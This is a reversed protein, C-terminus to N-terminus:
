RQAGKQAVVLMQGALPRWPLRLYLPTLRSLRAFRSKLSFPMFRAQVDVVTFGRSSVFDSLSTESLATLHTYDDWYRHPCLRINPGILILRGGPRLVAHIGDLTAAIQDRTLHELLNSSFVVDVSDHAVEQVLDTASANVTEVGAGAYLAIDPNIDVAIRRRADVANVFSCYGAGLDLVTADPSWWRALYDAIFTWVEDRRADPQFRTSFYEAADNAATRDADHTIALGRTRRFGIRHYRDTTRPGVTLSIDPSVDCGLLGWRRRAM